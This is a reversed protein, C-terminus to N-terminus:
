KVWDPEDPWVLEPRTKVFKNGKYYERWIDGQAEGSGELIFSADPYKKALVELDKQHDYWKIGQSDDGEVGNVDIYNYEELEEELISNDINTTTLTYRTYYGM